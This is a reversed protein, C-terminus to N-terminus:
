HTKPHASCTPPPFTILTLVGEQSQGTSFPTGPVSSLAGTSDISRGDVQGSTFFASYLYTGSHSVAIGGTWGSTTFPSGAVQTLAGDSGVALTSIDSSFTDTVFLYKGNPSLVEGGSTETTGNFFPGGSVLSLSGASSMSFVDIAAYSGDYSGNDTVFVLNGACNVAVNFPTASSAFPSGAVATLTGTSSISYVGVATLSGEAVVLLQSNSSVKLGDSNAGTQFPSGEVEGLAGANGIAYVHINTTCDCTAFLFKNDPSTALAYDGGPAGDALFPSGQVHTLAGTTSNIKFASITGSGDNAAYLFSANHASAIAIEEPDISNGGGTGGTKYPSGAVAALAGNTGVAFASVTNPPENPEGTSENNNTYVFQSQAMPTSALLLALCASWFYKM